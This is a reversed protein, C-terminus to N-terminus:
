GTAADRAQFPLRPRVVRVYALLWMACLLFLSGLAWERMGLRRSIPMSAAGFAFELHVWYVLLSARGLVTLPPLSQVAARPRVALSVGVLCLVLGMRYVVRLPQTLWAHDRLLLYIPTWSESTIMAIFAGLACLAIASTEVREESEARGWFLGLAAGELAYALWPFLPFLGIVAQDPTPQWQGLYAAIAEPIAGPMRDRVSATLAAVILAGVLYLKMGAFRSRRLAAIVSLVILSAGICQLVDVRLLNRAREPLVLAVRHIGIAFSSSALALWAIAHRPRTPLLGVAYYALAYAGLLLAQGLYARRSAYGGGDIVWMQLRLLYGLVILRLGRACDNAFRPRRDRDQANAWQLGLSVGTLTLFIPAALGGFFQSANWLDGHRATPRVWGHSTHLPVMFVVALGRLSDIFALRKQAPAKTSM